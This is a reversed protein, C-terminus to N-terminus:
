RSRLSLTDRNQQALAGASGGAFVTTVAVPAAFGLEQAREPTFNKTQALYEAELDGLMAMHATIQKELSTRTTTHVVALLLFIGYLFVSLACAGALVAAVRPTYVDYAAVATITKQM